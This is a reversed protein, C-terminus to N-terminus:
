GCPVVVGNPFKCTGGQNWVSGYPTDEWPAVSGDGGGGGGPGPDPAVTPVRHIGGGASQSAPRTQGCNGWSCCSSQEGTSGDGNQVCASAALNCATCESSSLGLWSLAGCGWQAYCSDHADCCNGKDTCSYSEFPWDCGYDDDARVRLRGSRGTAADSTAAGSKLITRVNDKAATTMNRLTPFTEVDIHTSHGIPTAGYYEWELYNGDPKRVPYQSELVLVGASTIRVDISNDSRRVALLDYQLYHEQISDIVPLQLASEPTAAFAAVALVCLCMALVSPIVRRSM